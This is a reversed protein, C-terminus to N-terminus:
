PGLGLRGDAEAVDRGVLALKLGEHAVARGGAPEVVLHPGEDHGLGETEELFLAAKVRLDADM